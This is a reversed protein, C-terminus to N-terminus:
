TSSKTSQQHPTGLQSLLFVSAASVMVAGAFCALDLGNVLPVNTFKEMMGAQLLLLIAHGVKTKARAISRTEMGQKLKTLNFNGSNSTAIQSGRTQKMETSCVFMIYLAMGFTLLATGVLFMDIAEVALKVIQVQDSRSPIINHFYGTSSKLVLFCGELFCLVSGILSGAVAILAFKQCGIIGKEILIELAPAWCNRLSRFLPPIHQSRDNNLHIILKTIQQPSPKSKNIQPMLVPAAAAKSSVSGKIKTETVNARNQYGQRSSSMFNPFKLPPLHCPSSSLSSPLNDSELAMCAQLRVTRNVLSRAM